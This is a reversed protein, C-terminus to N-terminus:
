KPCGLRSLLGVDHLDGEKRVFTVLSSIQLPLPAVEQSLRSHSGTPSRFAHWADEQTSPLQGLWRFISPDCECEPRNLLPRLLQLLASSKIILDERGLGQCLRVAM